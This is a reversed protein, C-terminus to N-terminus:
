GEPTKQWLLPRIRDVHKMASQYTDSTVTWNTRQKKKYYPAAYQQEGHLMDLAYSLQHIRAKERKKFTKEHKRAIGADGLLIRKCEGPGYMTRLALFTDFPTVGRITNCTWCSLKRNVYGDRGGKSRPIVHEWTAMTSKSPASHCDLFMKQKCFCCRGKQRLYFKRKIFHDKASKADQWEGTSLLLEVRKKSNLISQRFSNAKPFECQLPM